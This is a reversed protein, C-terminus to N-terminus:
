CAQTGRNTNLNHTRLMREKGSKYIENYKYRTKLKLGVLVWTYGSVVICFVRLIKQYVGSWIGDGIMLWLYDALLICLWGWKYMIKQLNWALGYKHIALARCFCRLIWVYVNDQDTTCNRWKTRFLWTLMDNDHWTEMVSSGKVNTPWELIPSVLLPYQSKGHIGAWDFDILKVEKNKTIM